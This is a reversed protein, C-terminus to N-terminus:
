AAFIGPPREFALTSPLGYREDAKPNADADAHDTASAL